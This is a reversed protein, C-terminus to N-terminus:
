WSSIMAIMRSLVNIFISTIALYPVKWHGWLEGFKIKFEFYVVGAFLSNKNKYIGNMKYSKNDTLLSFLWPYFKGGMCINQPRLKIM